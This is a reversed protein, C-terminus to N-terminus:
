PESMAYMRSWIVGRLGSAVQEVGQQRRQEVEECQPRDQRLVGPETSKRILSATACRLDLRGTASGHQNVSGRRASSRAVAYSAIATGEVSGLSGRMRRCQQAM